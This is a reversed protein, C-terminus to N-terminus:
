SSHEVHLAEGEVAQLFEDCLACEHRRSRLSRKLETPSSSNEQDEPRVALVFFDGIDVHSEDM